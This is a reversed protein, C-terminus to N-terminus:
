LTGKLDSRLTCILRPSDRQYFNDRGLQFLTLCYYDEYNFPWSMQHYAEVKKKALECNRYFPDFIKCLQMQIKFGM